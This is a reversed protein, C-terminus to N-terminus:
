QSGSKAILGNIERAAESSRQALARVESAVVAFGRGADGARAAEVGANLALLNTQFAIDDIVNIISTIKDSSAAILDMAAVTELVVQGSEEANSKAQAVQRDARSAGEAASRVSTTLEDLAAATQELTAATSETRRSLADATTSIERAENRINEANESVARLAVQLTDVTNNYDLRLQEYDGAFPDELRATFDGESMRRLGVRLQDVVQQQSRLLEAREARSQSMVQEQETVDRGILLYRMITGKADRVASLGGDIIAPGAAGSFSM